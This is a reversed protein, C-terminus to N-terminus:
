PSGSSALLEACTTNKGNGCAVSYATHGYMGRLTADAGGDHLLLKVAAPRNHLCAHMLATWGSCDTWNVYERAVPLVAELCTTSEHRVSAILARAMTAGDHVNLTNGKALIIGAHEPRDHACATVVLRMHHPHRLDFAPHNIIQRLLGPDRVRCAHSALTMGQGDRENIAPGLRDLADVIAPCPGDRMTNLVARWEASVHGTMSRRPHIHTDTHTYIHICTRARAKECICTRM